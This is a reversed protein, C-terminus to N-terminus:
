GQSSPMPQCPSRDGGSQGCHRLVLVFGDDCRLHHPLFFLHHSLLFVSGLGTDLVCGLGTVEVGRPYLACLAGFPSTSIFFTPIPLCRDRSSHAFEVERPQPSLPHCPILVLKYRCVTLLSYDKALHSSPWLVTHFLFYFLVAQPM